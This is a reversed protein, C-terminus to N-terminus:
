HQLISHKPSMFEFNKNEITYKAVYESTSTSQQVILTRVFLVNKYSEHHIFNYHRSETINTTILPYSSFNKYM